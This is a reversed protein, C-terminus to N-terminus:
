YFGSLNYREPVPQGPYDQVLATLRTQQKNKTTTPAVHHICVLEVDAKTQDDRDDCRQPIFCGSSTREEFERSIKGSFFRDAYCKKPMVSSVAAKVGVKSYFNQQM